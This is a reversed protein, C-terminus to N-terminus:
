KFAQYEAILYSDEEILAYKDRGAKRICELELDRMLKIKEGFGQYGVCIVVTMDKGGERQTAIRYYILPTM